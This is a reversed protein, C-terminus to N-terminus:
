GRAGGSALVHARLVLIMWALMAANLIHWLFHTGVPLAGCLPADLTRFAISVCLLGAGLALGRATEPARRALLAAHAFILLPVPVYAASGGLVDRFPLVEALAMMAPVSVLTCVGAAFRGQGWFERHAAYIYLVIFGLIPLVDAMGAWAQAVTHFLGSGIGILVLVAALARAKPLGATKPWVWLAAFMFALNTVANVPESWLGPGLRECYGDVATTWDM